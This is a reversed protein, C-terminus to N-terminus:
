VSITVDMQVRGPPRSGAHLDAKIVPVEGEAIEPMRAVVPQALEVIVQSPSWPLKQMLTAKSATVVEGQSVTRLRLTAHTQGEGEIRVLSEPLDALRLRFEVQKRTITAGTEPSVIEALDLRAANERLQPTGGALDAVDGVTVTRSKVVVSPRLSVVLTGPSEARTAGCFLCVSLCCLSRTM